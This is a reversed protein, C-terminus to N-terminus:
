SCSEILHVTFELASVYTDHDLPYGSDMVSKRLIELQFLVSSLQSVKEKKKGHVVAHKLLNIHMDLIRYLDEEVIPTRAHSLNEYKVM